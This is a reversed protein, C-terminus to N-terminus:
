RVTFRAPFTMARGLHCAFLEMTQTCSIKSSKTSFATEALQISDHKEPYNKVIEKVHDKYESFYIEYDRGEM